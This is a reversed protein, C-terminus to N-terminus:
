RGALCLCLEASRFSRGIRFFVQHHHLHQMDAFQGAMGYIDVCGQGCVGEGAGGRGGERRGLWGSAAQGVWVHQEEHIVFLGQWM